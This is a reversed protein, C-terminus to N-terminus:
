QAAYEDGTLGNILTESLLRSWDKHTMHGFLGSPAMNETVLFGIMLSGFLRMMVLPEIPRLGPLTQLRAVSNLIRPFVTNELLDRLHEGGFERLDIQTLQFFDYYTPMVEILVSVAERIFDPATTSEVSELTEALFEYPSREHLLDAFIAEKTPFHNYLGAVARGGSAEAIARMSTGNYGNSLFLTRAAELIEARAQDGRTVNAPDLPDSYPVM